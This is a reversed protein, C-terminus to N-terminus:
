EEGSDEEVLDIIEDDSDEPIFTTAPEIVHEEIQRKQAHEVGANYSLLAVAMGVFLTGLTIM